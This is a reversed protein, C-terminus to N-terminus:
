LPGNTGLRHFDEFFTPYSKDACAIDDLEVPREAATAGVAVSLAIRHDNFSRFAGGGRFPRGVGGVAFETETVSVEVGFRRLVDEMAAVRDCEKIRLRGIGRFVTAGARRAAVVTLVPFLDPFQSVDIERPLDALLRVIERDPQRSAAALGECGSLTIDSGLANMALPFAASSWDTEIVPGEAPARYAQGGRVRFGDAVEDVEIGYARVVDLTMDVYGRSQLPTTLRIESDGTVLPLAFLLGSVFQSSVDGALRHVGAKLESYDIQPRSALRGRMVWEPKLGLAAVVPGLLRRTTGSEGVDLRVENGKADALAALCRKTAAVDACDLPDPKLAKTRGALFEALLVRHAHSKSVPVRMTGRRLGPELIM